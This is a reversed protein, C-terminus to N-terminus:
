RRWPSGCARWRPTAWAKEMALYMRDTSSDFANFWRRPGMTIIAPAPMSEPPRIM